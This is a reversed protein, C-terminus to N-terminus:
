MELLSAAHKKTSGRDQPQPPNKAVQPKFRLQQPSQTHTYLFLLNSFSLNLPEFLKRFTHSYLGSFPLSIKKFSYGHKVCVLIASLAYQCLLRLIFTATYCLRLATFIM